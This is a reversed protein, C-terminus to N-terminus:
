AADPPILSGKIKDDGEPYNCIKNEEISLWQQKNWYDNELLGNLRYTYLSSMRSVVENSRTTIIVKSGQAGILLLTSLINEWQNHKDNWMDDLVILYRSDRLKERLVNEREGHSGVQINKRRVDDNYVTQALAIKGIGGM